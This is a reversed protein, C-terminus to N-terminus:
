PELPSASLLPALKTIPRKLTSTAITIDKPDLPKTRPYGPLEATNVTVEAARVLGDVGPSVSIIRGMKWTTQLKTEDLVMVLDGVSVNPTTKHWKQRRQLSQLYQKQWLEWFRQVMAKCLSWRNTLTLDPDEPLEPYVGMPRGTLFHSPTLPMEGAPNHSDQSIYPRSNICAEAQCCVTSLEEFTLMTKGVTRKLCHKAAKVAAEWIGGFHPARDPIFHCEIKNSLLAEKLAVQTTSLSLFQFLEKMENRAGVFNSGNDSYLHRPSNRRTIFRKFTAIFAETSKSSVVELHVAKSALCVFVALYAKVPIPRRPHGTKLLFPGAYDVGTHIFPLSKEVRPPPLQGMRQQLSRPAVRRCLLCNQCVSRSLRKAGPVYVQQGVHAMLLTPGCHSLYEHNYQFLLKTVHDKASLIVPHKQLDSLSSRNLRGGVLLLGKQDLFPHVLKLKSDGKMIASSAATLRQIEVPFTRAQSQRFLVTEAATVEAPSLVTQRDPPEGKVAAKLNRSFRLLYATVHVLKTYSKFKSSWGTDTATHVSHVVVPKAELGQHRNYATEDPQPPIAIPNMLLWPPGNWWLHHDKLDQASIGRSACDAPNEATPVHLWAEQSIHRAASAVRNAVYTKYCSPSGRLWAIAITSDSWAWLQVDPIQLTQQTVYLLEAVMEAACLELRPISVTKIPTVRTKAVVLQCSTSGDEYTARLYVAAACASESADSFGHLQITNTITGPSFYCRPLTLCKLLPLQERWEQHREALHRELPDDWGVKDKLKWLDQFLIKMRIIFPALWGLVDFSKATDSIIGRKTSVYEEPLQVQAAMVDRRSDWAIGLTKPYASAHHDVLEQRPLAEQLVAPIAELVEESSSRWKKLDFGGKLLLARLDKYLSVASDKDDAGALLDDVYISNFTHFYSITDSSSFDEATQQLARVALYPSSRVGFTVRNMCYTELPQDPQARWLFRHLQRDPQSLLVERYMKGIDASIAVRHKRFRILIQDLNPHLTPGTSLVDNLSIGTSTPCSGDFVVRLKTTSSSTKYVAHMPLTYTQDVPTCLEAPTVKQAHGLTLYEQVVTQFQTWNGKKLLSQENRLFRTRATNHSDGLKQPTTRKPLSVVYRGASHSFYHTNDFHKQVEMEQTSLAPAGQVLEERKWFGELTNNLTDAEATEATSVNVAAEAPSQLHSLLYRGMIGWGLKTEWASPTAPPGEIKSPLLIQDFVDSDLILDVRRPQHFWPDALSLDQLHPMRKVASLDHRPLDVTVKPLIVARVSTTWDPNFLSSITLNTTPRPPSHKQSEIGSVTMWDETKQLQLQAMMRSSLVSIAAGSDLMARAAVKEGVSNTLLVQSTMLLREKQHPHATHETEEQTTLVVHNVPVPAAAAETHLLTNHTKKCVRCRFSSSCERAAHGPRLCNFCLSASQTHERRQQVSMDLFQRCQFIHHTNSCLSCHVQAGSNSGRHQKNNYRHPKYEEAAGAAAPEGQTAYVKGQTKTLPKKKERQILSSSPTAPKQALCANTAKTRMFEILTDIHPVLPDAETKTEWQLRLQEPLVSVVMSTAVYNIDMQGGRKIGEVAAFIADVTKTLEESTGKIPPLDQLQQCYIQHLQRPKDFRSQLYKISAQYRDEKGDNQAQLYSTTSPDDVLDLLIAMKVPNKIKANDHVAPRFRGWFCHWAAMGGKFKPINVKPTDFDKTLSATIITPPKPEVRLQTKLNLLRKALRDIDQCVAHDLDISSDKLNQRIQEVAKDSTYYCASYDKDPDALKCEELAILDKDLDLLLRSVMKLVVLDNCLTLSDDNMRILDRRFAEDAAIKDEDKEEELAELYPLIRATLGHYETGRSTITHLNLKLYEGRDMFEQLESHVRRAAKFVRDRKTRHEEMM